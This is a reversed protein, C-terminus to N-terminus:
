PTVEDWAAAAAQLFAERDMGDARAQSVAHELTDALSTQDHGEESRTTALHPLLKSIDARTLKGHHEFHETLLRQEDMPLKAALTAVQQNIAGNRLAVFLPRHLSKLLTRTDISGKAMGSIQRIAWPNYGSRRLQSIAWYETLYNTTRFGNAVLTRQAIDDDSLGTVVIAPITKMGAIRASAIRRNGDIITYQVDGDEGVTEALTVPNYIGRQAVSERLREAPQTGVTDGINTLPVNRLTAEM